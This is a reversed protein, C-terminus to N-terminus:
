RRNNPHIKIKCGGGAAAAPLRDVREALERRELEDARLKLAGVTRLREFCRRVRRLVRHGSGVYSARQRAAAARQPRLFECRIASLREL